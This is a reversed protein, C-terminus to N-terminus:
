MLAINIYSGSMFNGENSGLARKQFFDAAKMIRKSHQMYASAAYMVGRWRLGPFLGGLGVCKPDNREGMRKELDASNTWRNSDKFDISFQM